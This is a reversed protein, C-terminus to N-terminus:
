LHVVLVVVINWRLTTFLARFSSGALLCLCRTMTKRVAVPGKLGGNGCLSKELMLGFAVLAFLATRASRLPPATTLVWCLNVALILYRTATVTRTRTGRAVFWRRHMCVIALSLKANPLRRVVSCTYWQLRDRGISWPFQHAVRPWLISRNSSSALVLIPTVHRPKGNVRVYRDFSNHEQLAYM